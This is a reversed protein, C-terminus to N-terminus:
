AMIRPAFGSSSNGLATHNARIHKEKEEGNNQSVHNHHMARHINAENDPLSQLVSQCLVPDPHELENKGRNGQQGRLIMALLPLLGHNFSSTMAAPSPSM